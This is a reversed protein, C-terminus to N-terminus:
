LNRQKAYSGFFIKLAILSFVGLLITISGYNAFAKLYMPNTIHPNIQGELKSTMTSFYSMLVSAIGSGLQFFGLLSAEMGQPALSHSLSYGIPNVYLEAIAQAIYCLVIWFLGIFGLAGSFYIGAVLILYSLGMLLIGCSLKFSADAESKIQKNRIGLFPGLIVIILSNIAMITPTPITIGFLERYVNREIFLTLVTPTMVFLAGFGISIWTIFLFVRLKKRKSAELRFSYFILFVTIILGFALILANCIEPFHFAMICLPIALWLLITGYFKQSLSFKKEGQLENLLLYGLFGGSNLIAGIIFTIPYGLHQSLFGASSTAIVGGINVAIYALIFAHQRKPHTIPFLEGVLCYLNPVQLCTGVAFIAVAAYFIHLNSIAMLLIAITQIPIAYLTARKHGFFNDGLYGGFLPCGFIIAGYAAFLTYAQHDTLHFAQTCYLTMLSFVYMFGIMSFVQMLCIGLLGRNATNTQNTLTM